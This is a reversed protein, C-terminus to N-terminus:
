GSLTAVIRVKSKRGALKKDYLHLLFFTFALFAAGLLFSFVIGEMFMQGIAAGILFSFAPLLFLLTTGRLLYGGEIEVKVKDGVRTSPTKEAEIYREGKGVLECFDAMSCNSCNKKLELKIRAINGKVEVVEGVEIM